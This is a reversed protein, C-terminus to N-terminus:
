SACWQCCPGIWHGIIQDGFTPDPKAWYSQGLFKKTKINGVDRIYKTLRPCLKCKIVKENVRNL